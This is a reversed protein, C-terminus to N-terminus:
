VHIHDRANKSYVEYSHAEPDMTTEPQVKMQCLNGSQKEM